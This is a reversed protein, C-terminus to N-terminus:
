RCTVWKEPYKDIYMGLYMYMSIDYVYIDYLYVYACAYTNTHTRTHTHAHTHTHTHTRTDYSAVNNCKCVRTACEYVFVGAGRSIGKAGAARLSARNGEARM